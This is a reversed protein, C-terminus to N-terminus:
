SRGGTRACDEPRGSSGVEVRGHSPACAHKHRCNPALNSLPQLASPPPSSPSQWISYPSCSKSIIRLTHIGRGISACRKRNTHKGALRENDERKRTKESAFEAASPLSELCLRSGPVSPRVVTTVVHVCRLTVRVDVNLPVAVKIDEGLGYRNLEGLSRSSKYPSVKIM